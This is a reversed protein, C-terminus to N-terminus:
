NAASVSDYMYSQASVTPVNGGNPGLADEHRRCLVDLQAGLLGILEVMRKLTQKPNNLSM